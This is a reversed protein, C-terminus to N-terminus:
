ESTVEVKTPDVCSGSPLTFPEDLESCPDPEVVMPMEGGELCAWSRESSCAMLADLQDNCEPTDYFSTGVAKCFFTLGSNDMDAPCNEAEVIASADCYDSWKDAITEASSGCAMLGGMVLATVVVSVFRKKMM